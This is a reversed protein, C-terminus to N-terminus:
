FRMLSAAAAELFEVGEAKDDGKVLSSSTAMVRVLTQHVLLLWLADRAQSWGVIVFGTKLAPFEAVDTDIAM